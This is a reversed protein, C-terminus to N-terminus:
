LDLAPLERSNYVLVVLSVRPVRNVHFFHPASHPDLRVAADQQVLPLSGYLPLVRVARPLRQALERQCARIERAGALFVLVDGSPAEALAQAVAAAVAAGLDGHGM